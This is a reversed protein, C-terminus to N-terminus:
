LKGEKVLKEVQVITMEVASTAMKEMGRGKEKEAESGEETGPFIVKFTFTLFTQGKEDVSILNLVETGTERMKFTAWYPEVFEVDEHITLGELVIRRSLGTKHESLVECETIPTFGRPERAKVKLGKWLQERTITSPVARTAVIPYVM